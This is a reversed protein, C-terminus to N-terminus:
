STQRQAQPLRDHSVLLLLLPELKRTEHQNLRPAKHATLKKVTYAGTKTFFASKEDLSPKMNEDGKVKDPHQSCKNEGILYNRRHELTKHGEGKFSRSHQSPECGLVHEM